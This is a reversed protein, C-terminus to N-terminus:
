KFDKTEKKKNKSKLIEAWQLEISSVYNNATLFIIKLHFIKFAVPLAKVM